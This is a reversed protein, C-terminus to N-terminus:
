DYYLQQRRKYEALSLGGKAPDGVKGIFSSLNSIDGKSVAAGALADRLYVTGILYDCSYHVWGEKELVGSIHTKGVGSMGTLTIAKVSQKRFEEAGLRM